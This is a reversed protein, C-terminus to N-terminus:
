TKELYVEKSIFHAKVPLNDKKILKVLSLYLTSPKKDHFAVKVIKQEQKQFDTLLRSYQVSIGKTRTGEPLANLPSFSYPKTEPSQEKKKPM